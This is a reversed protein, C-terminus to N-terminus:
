RRRSSSPPRPLATWYQTDTRCAPRPSPNRLLLPRPVGVLRRAHISAKGGERSVDDVGDLSAGHALLAEVVSASGAKCALQLPSSGKQHVDAFRLSGIGAAFQTTCVERVVPARKGWIARALQSESSM